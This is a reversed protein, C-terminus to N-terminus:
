SQAINGGAGGLITALMVAGLFPAIAWLARTGIEIGAGTELGGIMAHPEAIFPLLQRAISGAFWGGSMLIVAAAGMLSLASAVDGKKRADALKRPTAEETKSEPDPGDAVPAESSSM